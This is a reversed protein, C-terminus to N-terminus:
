RNGPSPDPMSVLSPFPLTKSIPRFGGEVLLKREM